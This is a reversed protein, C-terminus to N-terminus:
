QLLTTTENPAADNVSGNRRWRGHNLQSGADRACTKRHLLIGVSVTFGCGTLIMLALLAISCADMPLIIKKKFASALSPTITATEDVWMVPFYTERLISTDYIHSPEPKVLVNVQMRKHANLVAGTLPNVDLFSDHHAIDPPFGVMSNNVVMGDIIDDPANLFYPKSMFVPPHLPSLASMNMLGAPGDMFFPKNDPDVTDNNLEVSPIIFRYTDIGRVDGSNNFVFYGSRFLNDIFAVLREEKQIDTHFLTGDTGNIGNAQPSGWYPLKTMEHWHTYVGVLNSDGKGTFIRSWLESDDTLNKQQLSFQAPLTKDYQHALKFIPDDYGWLLEDVTKTVILDVEGLGKVVANLLDRLTESKEHTEVSLLIALPTNLTTINYLRPDFVSANLDLTFYHDMRYQVLTDDYTYQLDYKERHERYVFPGVEDFEPREGQKFGEPNILDYFYFKCYVPVEPNAWQKEVEGGPQIYAQERIILLFLTNMYIYLLIAPVLVLMSVIALCGYGCCGGGAKVM